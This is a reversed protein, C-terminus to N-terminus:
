EGYGMEEVAPRLISDVDTVACAALFDGEVGVAFPDVYGVAQM